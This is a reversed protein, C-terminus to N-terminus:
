RPAAVARALARISPHDYAAAAEVHRGLWEGLDGSLGVVAASDLGLREFSADVDIKEIPVALVESVYEALWRTIHEEEMVISAEQMNM